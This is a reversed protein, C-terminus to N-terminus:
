SQTPYNPHCSIFYNKVFTFWFEKQLNKKPSGVPEALPCSQLPTINLSVLQDKYPLM